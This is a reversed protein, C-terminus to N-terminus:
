KAGSSVKSPDAKALRGSEETRWVDEQEAFGEQLAWEAGTRLVKDFEKEDIDIGGGKGVGSPCNRYLATALNALHPKIQDFEIQSALVRVGCNIDYGIAGPGIVGDKTSSAVVGGIPFGYGQHIDPMALAYGVLGPLTASNVLQTLSDDGLAADLIKDSAYLRAPVIMDERYTTPIEWLFESIRKMHRKQIM